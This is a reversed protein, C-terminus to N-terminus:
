DVLHYDHASFCCFVTLCSLVYQVCRRLVPNLGLSSQRSDSSSGSCPCGLTTCAWHYTAPRSPRLWPSGSSFLRSSTCSMKCPMCSWPHGATTPECRARPAVCAVGAPWTQLNPTRRRGPLISVFSLSGLVASKM